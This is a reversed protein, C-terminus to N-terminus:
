IATSLQIAKTTNKGTEDADKSVFPGGIRWGLAVVTNDVPSVSICQNHWGANGAQSDVSTGPPQGIVQSNIIRWNMGGDMSSLLASIGDSGSVAYMFRRISACSAISTRQVQSNNFGPPLIAPQIQLNGGVWNGFFLGNQGIAVVVREAPGEAIETFTNNQLDPLGATVKTWQYALPNSSPPFPSYWLGRAAAIVIRQVRPLVLIRFISHPEGPIPIKHWTSLPESARPDTMWLAGTGPYDRCGAFIHYNGSFGQALCLVDPNDWGHSLDTADGRSSVQWVGGFDAAVVISDNDLPLVANVRGAHWIQGAEDIQLGFPNALSWNLM